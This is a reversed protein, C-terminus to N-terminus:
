RIRTKEVALNLIIAKFSGPPVGRDVITNLEEGCGAAAKACLLATLSVLKEM